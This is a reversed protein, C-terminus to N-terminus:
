EDDLPSSIAFDALAILGAIILSAAIMTWFKAASLSLAAFMTLQDMPPWLADFM